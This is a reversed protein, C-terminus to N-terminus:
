ARKRNRGERAKANWHKPGNREALWEAARRAWSRWVPCSGATRAPRSFRSLAPRESRAPWRARSTKDKEIARRARARPRERLRSRSACVHRDTTSTPFGRHQLM